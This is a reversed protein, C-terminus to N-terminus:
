LCCPLPGAHTHATSEAADGLLGGSWLTGLWLTLVLLLPAACRAIVRM